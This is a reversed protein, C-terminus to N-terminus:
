LGQAARSLRWSTRWSNLGSPRLSNNEMYRYLWDQHLGSPIILAVTRGWELEELQHTRCVRAAGLFWRRLDLPETRGTTTWPPFLKSDPMKFAKPKDPQQQLPEPAAAAAEGTRASPVTVEVGNRRTRLYEEGDLCFRIADLNGRFDALRVAIEEKRKRETASNSLALREATLTRAEAMFGELQNLSADRYAAYAAPGAEPANIPEM